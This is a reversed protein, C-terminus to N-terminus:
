LSVAYLNPMKNLNYKSAVDVVTKYSATPGNLNYIGCSAFESSTKLNYVATHVSKQRTWTM